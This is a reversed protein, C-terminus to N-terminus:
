VTGGGRRWTVQARMGLWPSLRQLARDVRLLAPLLFPPLLSARKFGLSLLYAFGNLTEVRPPDLGLERWREASATGLLRWVVAGDGEFADKAEADAFPDWPDLSLRCGEQHLFRYIPYSFVTVWPEVFALQRGPRLVRAAEEFFSAPRALHHLLDVGLVGDFTGERFPLRLADAALDNWPAALLDSAIWRLDPRRPRAHEAFRGPGAGVELVRAGQPVGALLRDFWVAYVDGLVPKTRFIERHEALRELSM